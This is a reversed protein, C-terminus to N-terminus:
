SRSRSSSSGRVRTTRRSSSSSRTRRSRRPPTAARSHRRRSSSSSTRTAEARVAVLREYTQEASQFATQAKTYAASVAQSAQTAIAEDIPDPGITAGKGLDLPSSFTSGFTLYSARLQAEQAEQAFKSGQALHLGALERLADQDKPKLELYRTLAVIAEDTKGDTRSRPRSTASRRRARRARRCRSARTPSPSTAARSAAATRPPARRHRRRKGLASASSRRLRCRVLPRPVRVDVERPQAHAHLVDHGRHSRARQRPAARTQRALMRSRAASAADILEHWEFGGREYRAEGDVLTALVREPSGGYVVAAAPDEWPLYPSGSLSLMALDARKGPVLSGVDTRSGSRGPAASRPWSSRRPRPSPTPTSAAPARAASIAARLEEFATTRRCPRSATRASASGSGPRACSPSRHSGAASCRTRARATSSPSTTARRAPRDGGRRGQRLACRRHARDLLGAAALRRIGSQGDPDILLPEVPKMPGEGRLLWDLEDQSENFHTMVPVGLALCAAYVETSCTYPAHPSVGLRVRDSVAAASTSAGEGRVAADRRAPDRRLGGSLRDCAARARRLRARERRHVGRRGRDHDRLALCQAAGLRAIAEMQPREIRAKREIHMALWPAFSLGDGFGAYVAYELHSHANVIGPM